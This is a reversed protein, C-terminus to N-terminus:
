SRLKHEREKIHLDGFFVDWLMIETKGIENMPSGSSLEFAEELSEAKILTLGGSHSEFGGGGCAVLKGRLYLEKLWVMLRPIRAEFEEPKFTEDPDHARWICAYVLPLPKEQEM